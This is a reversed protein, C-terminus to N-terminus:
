EKKYPNFEPDDKRITSGTPLEEDEEDEYLELLSEFKDAVIESLVLEKVKDVLSNENWIMKILSTSPYYTMRKHRIEEGEDTKGLVYTDEFYLGDETEIVDIDKLVVEEGDVRLWVENVRQQM